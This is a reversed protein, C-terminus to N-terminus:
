DSKAALSLSVGIGSDVPIDAFACEICCTIESIFDRLRKAEQALKGRQAFGASVVRPHQREMAEGIGQKIPQLVIHDSDNGNGM